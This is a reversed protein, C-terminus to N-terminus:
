RESRREHCWFPLVQCMLNLGARAAGVGLALRGCRFKILSIMEPRLPVPESREATLEQQFMNWTLRISNYGFRTGFSAIYTHDEDDVLVVSYPNGDALACLLLGERYGLGSVPGGWEAVGSESYM